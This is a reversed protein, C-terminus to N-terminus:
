VIKKHLRRRDRAEKFKQAANASQNPESDIVIELM